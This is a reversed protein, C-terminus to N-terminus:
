LSSVPGVKLVIPLRRRRNKIFPELVEGPLSFIDKKLGNNNSMEYIESYPLTSREYVLKQAMDNRDKHQTLQISFKFQKAKVAPGIFNVQIKVRRPPMSSHAIVAFYECHSLLFWKCTQNNNPLMIDLSQESGTLIYNNHNNIMHNHLEPYYGKWACNTFFCQYHRYCCEQEHVEKQGVFMQQKCGTLANRCPFKVLYGVKEMYLNRKSNFPNRCTPCNECMLVCKNCILHGLLCQFIPPVIHEFCVPCEFLRTLQDNLDVYTEPHEEVRVPATEETARSQNNSLMACTLTPHPIRSITESNDENIHNVIQDIIVSNDVTENETNNLGVDITSNVSGNDNNLTGSHVVRRFQSPDTLYDTLPVLTGNHNYLSNRSNVNNMILLTRSSMDLIPDNISTAPIEPTDPPSEPPPSFPTPSMIFPVVRTRPTESSVDLTGDRNEEDANTNHNESASFHSSGRDDGSDADNHSSVSSISEQGHYVEDYQNDPEMIHELVEPLEQEPTQSRDPPHDNYGRNTSSFRVRRHITRNNPPNNDLNNRIFYPHDTFRRSRRGSRPNRLQHISFQPMSSYYNPRPDVNNIWYNLNLPEDDSEENISVDALETNSTLSNSTQTNPPTNNLPIQGAATIQQTEPDTITFRVFPSRNRAADGNATSGGIRTSSSLNEFYSSHDRSRRYQENQEMNNTDTLVPPISLHHRSSFVRSPREMRNFEELDILNSRRNGYLRIDVSENENASMKM